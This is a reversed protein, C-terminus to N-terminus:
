KLQILNFIDLLGVPTFSPEALPGCTKLVVNRVKEKEANTLGYDDLKLLIIKGTQISFDIDGSKKPLYKGLWWTLGKLCENPSYNFVNKAKGVNTRGKPKPFAERITRGDVQIAAEIEKVTHEAYWNFNEDFIWWRKQNRRNSKRPVYRRDKRISAILEKTEENRVKAVAGPALKEVKALFAEAYNVRQANRQSLAIALITQKAIEQEGLRNSSVDMISDILHRYRGVYPMPCKDIDNSYKVNKFAPHFLRLMHFYEDDRFNKTDTFSYVNSLKGEESKIKKVEPM